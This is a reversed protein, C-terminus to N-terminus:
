RKCQNDKIQPRGFNKKERSIRYNEKIYNDDAWSYFEPWRATAKNCMQNVTIQDHELGEWFM